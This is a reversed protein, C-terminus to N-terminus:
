ASRNTSRKEIFLLVVAAALTCGAVPLLITPLAYKSPWSDSVFWARLTGLALLNYGAHLAIAPILSAGWFRALGCALGLVSATTLRVIGMGGPTDAHMLGFALSSILWAAGGSFVANKFQGTFPTGRRPLGAIVLSDPGPEDDLAPSQLPQKGRSHANKHTKKLFFSQVVGYIGGRFLLEEGLPALLVTFPVVVLWSDLATSRGFEGTQQQVARAGHRALEAILTDFALYMGLSHAVVYVPPALLLGYAVSAGGFKLPLLTERLEQSGRTLLLAGCLGLAMVLLQVLGLYSTLTLNQAVARPLLLVGYRALLM